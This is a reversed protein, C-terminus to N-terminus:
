FKLIDGWQPSSSGFNRFIYFPLSGLTKLSNVKELYMFCSLKEGSSSAIGVGIDEVGLRPLLPKHRPLKNTNFDTYSAEPLLDQRYIIPVAPM